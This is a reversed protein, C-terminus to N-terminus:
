RHIPRLVGFLSGLLIGYRVGDYRPISWRRASMEAKRLRKYAKDAINVWERKPKVRVSQYGIIQGHEYIPTVYADVWYFGGSKTRNKVIGRWAQGKKLHSWMDAFAAKPMSEHRVINHNQGLLEDGSFEAIRCFAENSYTIVGNLDTTSVLQEHTELLTEHESSTQTVTM